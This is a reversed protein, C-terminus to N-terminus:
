FRLRIYPVFLTSHTIEMQTLSENKLSIRMGLTSMDYTTQFTIFGTNTMDATSTMSTSLPMKCNAWMVCRVRSPNSEGIRPFEGPLTSSICVAKFPFLPAMQSVAGAGNCRNQQENNDVIDVIGHLSNYAIHFHLGFLFLPANKLSNNGYRKSSIKFIICKQKKIRKSM